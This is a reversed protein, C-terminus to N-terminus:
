ETRNESTQAGVLLDLLQPCSIVPRSCNSPRGHISIQSNIEDLDLHCIWWQSVCCLSVCVYCPFIRTVLDFLSIADSSKLVFM